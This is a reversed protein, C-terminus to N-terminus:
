QLESSNTERPLQRDFNPQMMKVLWLATSANSFAPNLPDGESRQKATPGAVPSRAAEIPNSGLPEWQAVADERASNITSCYLVPEGFGARKTVPSFCLLKSGCRSRSFPM